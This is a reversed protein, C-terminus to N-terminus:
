AMKCRGMVRGAMEPAAAQVLMTGTSCGSVPLSSSGCKGLKKCEALDIDTWKEQNIGYPNMVGFGEHHVLGHYHGMEHRTTRLLLEHDLGPLLYITRRDNEERSWGFYGRDVGEQPMDKKIRYEADMDGDWEIRIRSLQTHSAMEDASSEIIAREEDTFSLDGHYVEACGVSAMALVIGISRWM